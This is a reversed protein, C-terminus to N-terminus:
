IDFPQSQTGALAYEYRQRSVPLIGNWPKMAMPSRYFFYYINVKCMYRHIITINVNQISFCYIIRGVDTINLLEYFNLIIMEYIIGLIQVSVGVFTKM